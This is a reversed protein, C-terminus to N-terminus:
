RSYQSPVGEPGIHTVIEGKHSLNYPTELYIMREFGNTLTVSIDAYRKKNVYDIYPTVDIRHILQRLQARLKTRIHTVEDEDARQMYESLELADTLSQAESNHLETRLRDAEQHLQERQQNLNELVDMLPTFDQSTDAMKNKIEKIRSEVETIKGEAAELQKQTDSTDNGAIDSIDLEELWHLIATEFPQYYLQSDDADSLGRVAGSSRLKAYGKGSKYGSKNEVHMTYGDNANYILNTFLNSVKQGYRGRQEKRSEIAKRARYFDEESIIQPFYDPIPDGVPQRDTAHGQHPQYEGMVARNKLIKAVYSRHWSEARGITPTGDQNLIRCITSFGYGDIALQYIRQIAAVADTKKVFHTRDDSLQLWSPCQATLPVGDYAKKKKEKWASGLRESKMASEEHARAMVTIAIILNTTNLTSKEFKEEPSLTVITIGRRIIGLFLELSEAVEQRSMRDLSEIILTSGQEIRGEDVASIFAGLAGEIANNGRFASVGLDQLTISEDLYLNERECYQRAKEIQRRLSDGSVQEPRSFRIYSYAKRM